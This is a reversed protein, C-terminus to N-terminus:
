REGVSTRRGCCKNSKAKRDFLLYLLFPLYTAYESVRINHDHLHGVVVHQFFSSGFGQLVRALRRGEVIEESNTEHNSQWRRREGDGSSLFSCILYEAMHDLMSFLMLFPPYTVQLRTKVTDMPTTAISSSAGAIVGGIAQVSVVELTSPLEKEKEEGYGLKRRLM